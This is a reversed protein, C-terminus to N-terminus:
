RPGLTKRRPSSWGAGRMANGLWDSYIRLHELPYWDTTAQSWAWDIGALCRFLSGFAASQEITEAELGTASAALESRYTDLCPNASFRYFSKPRHLLAGESREPELLQALDPAQPGLGAYEWDFIALGIGSGNRTIRLNKPFFDGHVLTTPLTECFAALEGWGSELLDLKFLLDRLVMAGNRQAENRRLRREIEDRANLLRVLYHRPGREPLDALGLIKPAHIQVTALWRAALRRHEPAAPSYPQAGADEVFIWSYNRDADRVEGYCRLSPTPVLPLLKGYVVSEIEATKRKCLKAVVSLDGPGAGELRYIAHRRRKSASLVSVKLPRAGGLSLWAMAAPHEALEDSAEGNRTAPAVRMVQSVRPAPGRARTVIRGDHMELRLDCRELTNLRHSIMFSTRGAMLREMAALILAETELDVSSTPEDLILIRADRLFARALSVRQREGGSLRMGREGVLTDYGDPLGSIFDHANAARAATEVERLSAGPRAYAINEAISTSFLVPEQLVIAFQGRLDRIRFDRLDVGDLRITGATPDYFRSLLSMLTTKGAGTAGAIGVSAGASVSFSVDHLIPRDSDYAFSVNRFEVNGRARSLPKADPREVLDPTEDLLTFVREASALSSQLQGAKRSVTKLPEYLQQLYAMVLVLEGVTLAGAQVRKTGVYLVAATGLGMILAILIGFGGETFSLGLQMRVSEGSRGVFREAERREQGFAKVVRLASLTEHVVSLASSELRKADHWGRRLRKRYAHFTILLLPVVSLAILALRWDLMATVVLMGGVTLFATVFPIVGSIALTQVSQADYQVRYTSDSVGRIDHYALSLRQLHAFLRARFGLLLRQGAYTKIVLSNFEGVQKLLTVGVFMLAALVLVAADSASVSTPVLPDLFGPLPKEGVVTDVAIKLPLPTLLTFVSALVSLVLLAGIYPWFPRAELFLRRYVHTPQPPQPASV